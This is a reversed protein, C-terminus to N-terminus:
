AERRWLVIERRVTLSVTTSKSERILKVAEKLPMYRTPKGDIAVVLDKKRVGAAAAPGGPKVNMITLGDLEMSFGAGILAGPGSLLTRYSAVPVRVAREISCKTEIAPKELLMAIIQAEPIYGTLRGWVSVLSDGRRIGAEYAPSKPAVATVVPSTGTSSAITIGITKRLKAVNAEAEDAEAKRTNIHAGYREIDAQRSVDDAKKSEERRLVYGHAFVMGDKAPKSNPNVKHAMEYYAYARLYDKREQAQEALKILNDEETDFRLEQVDAKMISVEGDPTSFTLRDHYDEVVIGKLEKGDRM